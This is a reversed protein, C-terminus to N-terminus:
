DRQARSNWCIVSKHIFVLKDAFIIVFWTLMSQVIQGVVWRIIHVRVVLFFREFVFCILAYIFRKLISWISVVFISWDLLSWGRHRWFLFLLHFIESFWHSWILRLILLIFFRKNRIFYFSFKLFSWNANMIVCLRPVLIYLLYFLYVARILILCFSITMQKCFILLLHLCFILCSGRWCNSM